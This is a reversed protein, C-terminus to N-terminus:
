REQTADIQSSTAVAVTITRLFRQGFLRLCGTTLPVFIVDDPDQGGSTAGKAAM